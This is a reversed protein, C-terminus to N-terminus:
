RLVQVAHRGDAWRADVVPRDIHDSPFVEISVAFGPALGGGPPLAAVLELYQPRPLYLTVTIPDVQQRLGELLAHVTELTSSIV